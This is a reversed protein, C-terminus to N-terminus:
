RQRLMRLFVATALGFVAGVTAVEFVWSLSKERQKTKQVQAFFAEDEAYIQALLSDPDKTDAEIAKLVELISEINEEWGQETNEQQLYLAELQSEDLQIEQQPNQQEQLDDSSANTALRFRAVAHDPDIKLVARADRQMRGVNQMELYPGIPRSWKKPINDHSYEPKPQQSVPNSIRTGSKEQKNLM